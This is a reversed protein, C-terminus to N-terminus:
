QLPISKILESEQKQTSLQQPPNQEAQAEQPNVAPSTTDNPNMMPAQPQEFDPFLTQPPLKGAEILRWMLLEKAADYPNPFDLREYLSIPDIAQASWLDMAENRKTLPDKPILSGEKVTVKLPFAFDTNRLEVSVAGQKKDRQSYVKPDTYYVYMMQVWWNFISDACQELAETITGGIRTADMQAVMVKGRVTKQQETGEPTSGSTGFINRLENRADQLQSFVDSSLAPAEDRKYSSAVDGRPVWLPNGRALQEAAEAAQEKTFHDGSLVVGNNQSDVNRDIQQYRRNILDQTPINQFILSTEDHPRRNLTFIRLFIYPVRPYKFHNRGEVLTKTKEGTTPDEIEVEGDYNWHPNKFKGLVERSGDELTFFVDTATDWQIITLKTGMKGDCRERIVAEKKPFMEVLKSASFKKKLGIFDGYYQGGVDIRCNVDFIFRSPLEAETKICGEQSDWTIRVAGILYLAWNRTMAKLIMRLRQTDAEDVLATQVDKAFKEAEKQTKPDDGTGLPTVNPEPNARTAIPLFTEVAEFILNDTLPRKTGALQFDNFQKGLWYNVSDKQMTKIDFNTLYSQYESDWQTTLTVIEEDKMTSEFEPLQLSDAEGDDSGKKGKNVGSFLGMVGNVANFFNNSNELAM